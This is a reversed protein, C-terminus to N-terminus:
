GGLVSILIERTRPRPDLEVVFVSQYTGLMLQGDIIPITESTSLMLHACHSHGNPSEDETMHVTRVSFDNHAYYDDQPAVRRLFREMDQLLLPENENIIVAATTHTSYVCVLGNQVGADTVHARVQETIDFFEPATTSQVTVRNVIANMRGQDKGNLVALNRLPVAVHPEEGNGNLTNGAAETWEVREWRNRATKRAYRGLAWLPFYNRYLHYKLMFSAGMELGQRRPAGTRDYRDPPNGAGYGPFGCGTFQPEDWTGDDRQRDLLFAIGRRVSEHETEGAAILAVLAWATQSPTSEGQGRLAHDVYSACSEGWGGDDNQCSRLWEVARRVRPQTMDEGLAELAPLAAGTGYLYNVGWRGFWSGDREQQSWLYAIGRQVAPHERSYGLRGYMELVHATVDASPPDLTEGFDSFPIKSLYTADNNRDFAAWGGNHSQMGTLWNVARRITADKEGEAADDLRTLALAMVIISSDDIDPYLDNEFEFAWGSPELAPTFVAWDGKVRIEENLLWQAARRMAPHNPAVGSDLLGLMALCTDWLPSLCAQVRLAAGDESPLSWGKEFGQLGKAIVPHDLPYGLASLAILSYVWPPQIGGWSGDAEQHAVVWAEAAKLAKKQGPKLPLRRYTRLVKDTTTFLREMSFRGASQNAEAPRTKGEPYLEDLAEDGTVPRTPRLTLVITLPVITARTWSSFKYLNFPAWKPILMLEPIMAPTHNWDWQGFLALWVKTFVRARPVGGGAIIFERASAMHPADPPDGALKLAFYCEVSTSLDGPAGHYMRWSGDLQQRRRIDEAVRAIRDGADVGLFRLLMIHEAEMTPNSEVEGWWFGDAHQTRFFYGRTQEVAERVREHLPASVQADNSRSSEHM